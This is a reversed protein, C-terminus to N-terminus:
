LLKETDGLRSDLLIQEIKYRRTVFGEHRLVLCLQHMRFHIDSYHQDHGTMFQGLDNEVGTEKLLKAVKFKYYKCIEELRALREGQVPDVTVHCEYKV